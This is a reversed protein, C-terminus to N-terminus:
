PETQEEAEAWVAVYTVDAEGINTIPLIVTEGDTSWGKFEHGEKEPSAPVEVATGTVGTVTKVTEEGNKFTVTYTESEETIEEVTSRGIAKLIEEKLEKFKGNDTLTGRKLNWAIFDYVKEQEEETSANELLTDINIFNLGTYKQFKQNLTLEAM